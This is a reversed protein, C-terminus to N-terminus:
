RRHDSAQTIFAGAEIQGRGALHLQDLRRAHRRLAAHVRMRYLAVAVDAVGQAVAYGREDGVVRVFDALEATIALAGLKQQSHGEAAGTRHDIQRALEAALGACHELEDLGAAPEAHAHASQRGMDARVRHRRAVEPHRYQGAGNQDAPRQQGTQRREVYQIDAPAERDAVALRRRVDLVEASGNAGREGAQRRVHAHDGLWPPEDGRGRRDGYRADHPARLAVAAPPIVKVVAQIARVATLQEVVGLVR